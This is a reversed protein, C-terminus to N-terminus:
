LASRRFFSIRGPRRTHPLLANIQYLGAYGPTVGAYLVDASTGAISVQVPIVTQAAGTPEVGTLVPPKVAGLGTCYITIIEGATAPNLDTVLAYTLGHEIAGAGTGQMNLTFIAPAAPVIQIPVSIRLGQSALSAIHLLDNGIPTEFPIQLNIQGSSVYFLPDGVNQVDVAADL